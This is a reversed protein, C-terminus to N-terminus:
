GRVRRMAQMSCRHVDFARANAHKGAIDKCGVRPKRVHLVVIFMLHWLMRM